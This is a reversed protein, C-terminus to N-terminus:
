TEERKIYRLTVVITFIVPPLASLCSFIIVNQVKTLDITSLLIIQTAIELPISVIAPPIWGKSANLGTVLGLFGNVGTSLVVLWLLNGLQAYKQGLLLLLPQPFIKVVVVILVLIFAYSALIQFYQAVLRRRGNNRAFRPVLIAGYMTGILSFMVGIRTVAGVDAVENTQGFIGVLWTVVQGQICYYITLPAVRKVVGLVSVRYEASVPASWQIQPKVYRVMMWAEVLAACATAFIALAANLMLLYAFGVTLIARVLTASLGVNRLSGIQQRLQLVMKMVGSTLQCWTGSFVLLILFLSTALTAQNRMLMWVLFPSLFVFSIVGFLRRMSLGTQVLVGMKEDDDWVKRGIGALGTGIGTDSLMAIVPALTMVITYIAYDKKTLSRLVLIGSVFNLAQIAVQSVFYSLLLWFWRVLKERKDQWHGKILRL